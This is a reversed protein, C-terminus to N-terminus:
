LLGESTLSTIIERVDRTNLRDILAFKRGLGNLSTGTVIGKQRGNSIWFRDHYNETMKHVISLAPKRLKLEVEITAKLAHDVRNNTIIILTDVVTLYKDLLDFITQAYTFDRNPAFLYPDIIILENDIVVKDLYKQLIAIIKDIGLGQPVFSEYISEVTLLSSVGNELIYERIETLYNFFGAGSMDSVEFDKLNIDEGNAIKLAIDFFNVQENKPVVKLIIDM